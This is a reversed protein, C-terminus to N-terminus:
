QAFYKFNSLLSHHSIQLFFQSTTQFIFHPINCIQFTVLTSSLRLIPLKIPDKLGFYFFYSRLIQLPTIHWPSSSHHLIQLPISKDNCFQCSSTSLNQGSCEFTQFIKVKISEKQVFCINNSSFFYPPIIKWSLSSHHM